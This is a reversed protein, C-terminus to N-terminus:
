IPILGLVSKTSLLDSYLVNDYDIIIRKESACISLKTCSQLLEMALASSNSCVQVLGDIYLHYTRSCNRWSVYYCLNQVSNKRYRERYVHWNCICICICVCVCMYIRAYTCARVCIMIFISPFKRAIGTDTYGDQTVLRFSDRSYKSAFWLCKM